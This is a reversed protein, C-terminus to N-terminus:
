AVNTNKLLMKLRHGIKFSFSINNEYTPAVYKKNSLKAEQIAETENNIADWRYKIRIEQIADYTLKQLHFRDIVVTTKPFCKRIIKNMSGAMDLTVEKVIKRYKEPIKKIIHIITNAKTGAIM